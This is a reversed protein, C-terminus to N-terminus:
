SDSAESTENGLENMEKNWNALGYEDTNYYMCEHIEPNYDGCDKDECTQPSVFDDELPCWIEYGASLMDKSKGWRRGVPRVDAPFAAEVAISSGSFLQPESQHTLSSDVSRRVFPLSAYRTISRNGNAM